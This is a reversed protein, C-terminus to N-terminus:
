SGRARAPGTFGRGFDNLTSAKVGEVQLLLAEHIMFCATSFGFGAVRKFPAQAGEV